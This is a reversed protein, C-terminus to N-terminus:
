KPGIRPTQFNGCLIIVIIIIMVLTPRGHSHLKSSPLAIGYGRDNLPPGVMMLNCDQNTIYEISTSEMLYAYKGHERKVREEGYEM